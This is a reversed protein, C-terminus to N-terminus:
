AFVPECFCSLCTLRACKLAMPLPPSLPVLSASLSDTLYLSLHSFVISLHSFSLSFALSFAKAIQYGVSHEINKVFVLGTHYDPQSGANSMHADLRYVGKISPDQTTVSVYLETPLHTQRARTLSIEILSLLKKVDSGPPVTITAHGAGMQRSAQETILTSALQALDRADLLAAVAADQGALALVQAIRKAPNLSTQRQPQQHYCDLLVLQRLLVQKVHRLDAALQADASQHGSAVDGSCTLFRVLAQASQSQRVRTSLDVGQKELHDTLQQLIQETMPERARDGEIQIAQLLIHIILPDMDSSSGGMPDITCLKQALYQESSSVMSMTLQPWRTSHFQKSSYLMALARLLADCDPEVRGNPWPNTTGLNAVKPLQSSKSGPSMQGLYLHLLLALMDSQIMVESWVLMVAMSEMVAGFQSLHRWNHSVAPVVEKLAGVFEVLREKVQNKFHPEAEARVAVKKLAL